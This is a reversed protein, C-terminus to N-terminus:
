LQNEYLEGTRGYCYNLYAHQDIEKNDVVAVQRGERLFLLRDSLGLIENFDSSVLLVAAGKAALDQILSYIEFRAGVDVGQSPEDLLLLRPAKLITKAFVVKQQNGGSLTMVHDSLSGAKLRVEAGVGQAAQHLARRDLFGATAWRELSMLSMNDTISRGMVLGQKRREEPVLAVGGAVADKPLGPAYRLGGLSMTGSKPKRVGFILELLETRGSGALGGIGVIEGSRVSFSIGQLYGDGLNKVSLVEEGAESTNRPPFANGLNRGIMSSILSNKTLEGKQFTGVNQGDRLVSIRDSLLLVDDLNHSVLVVTRGQDRLNRIVQFLSEKEKDTLATAPEDMFYYQGSVAFARAIAVMSRQGSSLRSVPIDLPITVQLQDLIAEAREKLRRWDILRTAKRPYPHGLFINEMANFYPVLNLEQHIFCLGNEGADKHSHIHREVGDFVFRGGDPRVVGALCKIFTSKGAGNEGVISHIEGPHFELSVGKLARAGAYSKQLDQV